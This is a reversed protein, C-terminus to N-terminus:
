FFFSSLSFTVCCCHWGFANRLKVCKAIRWCKMLCSDIKWSDRTKVILMRKNTNATELICKILKFQFWERCNSRLSCCWQKRIVKNFKDCREDVEVAWGITPIIWKSDFRWWVYKGSLDTINLEIIVHSLCQKLRVGPRM